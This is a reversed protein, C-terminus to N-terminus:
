LIVSGPCGGKPRSFTSYCKGGRLFIESLSKFSYDTVTFDGTINDKNQSRVLFISDIGKTKLERNLYGALFGNGGTVAVKM